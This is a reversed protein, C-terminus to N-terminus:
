CHWVISDVVYRKYGQESKFVQTGLVARPKVIDTKGGVVLGDHLVTVDDSETLESAREGNVVLRRHDDSRGTELGVFFFLKLLRSRLKATADHGLPAVSAGM